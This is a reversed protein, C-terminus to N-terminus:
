PASPLVAKLGPFNWAGGSEFLSKYSSGSEDLGHLFIITHTHTGTANVYHTTGLAPYSAQAVALFLSVFKYM